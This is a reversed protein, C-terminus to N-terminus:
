KSFFIKCALFVKHVNINFTLTPSNSFRLRLAPLPTNQTHIHHMVTNTEIDVSM